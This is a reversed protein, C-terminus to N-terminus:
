GLAAAYCVSPKLTEGIPYSIIWLEVPLHIIVQLFRTFTPITNMLAGSGSTAQWITYAVKTRPIRESPHRIASMKVMTQETPM